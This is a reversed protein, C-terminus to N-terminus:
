HILTVAAPQISKLADIYIYDLYNPVHKNKVLGHKIAWRSQDDLALILSQDLKVDFDAPNFIRTVLNTDMHIFAEIIDRAATPKQRIFDISEPLAAVIKKIIDPHKAIYEKKGVLNFRFRFEDAGYFLSINDAMKSQLQALYPHWVVVADTKGTLLANVLQNPKLNILQVNKEPVHHSVLLIDLMFQMNTGLSLGIKKGQLDGINNIGRDKRAVIATAWRANSLASIIAIQEGNMVKFMFPTDAAVALDAKNELMAQLGQMGLEHPQNTVEVGQQQFIKNHLAIFLPGTYIQTPLAITVKDLTKLQSSKSAYHNNALLLLGAVFLSGVGLLGWKKM